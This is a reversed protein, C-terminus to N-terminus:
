DLKTFGVREEETWETLKLIAGMIENFHAATLGKSELAQYVEEPSQAPQGTPLHLHATVGRGVIERVFSQNFVELRKGYEPDGADPIYVPGRVRIGLSRGDDSQPDIVRLRVPPQPKERNLREIHDQAVSAIGIRVGIVRTGKQVKITVTSHAKFADVEQEVSEIDVIEIQSAM